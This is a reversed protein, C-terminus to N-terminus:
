RRGHVGRTKEKDALRERLYERLFDPDKEKLRGLMTRLEDVAEDSYDDILRAAARDLDDVPQGPQEITVGMGRAAQQLEEPFFGLYGALGMFRAYMLRGEAGNGALYRALRELTAPFPQQIRNMLINHLGSKSMGAGAAAESISLGVKDLSERVYMGLHITPM